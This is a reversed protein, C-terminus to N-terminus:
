RQNRITFSINKPNPGPDFTLEQYGNVAWTDGGTTVKGARGVRGVRGVCEWMQM